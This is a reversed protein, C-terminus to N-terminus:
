ILVFQRTKENEEGPSFPQVRRDDVVVGLALCPCDINAGEERKLVTLISSLICVFVRSAGMKNKNSTENALRGGGRMEKVVNM